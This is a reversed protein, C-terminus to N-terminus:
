SASGAGPAGPDPDVSAVRPTANRLPAPGGGGGFEGAVLAEWRASELVIPDKVQADPAGARVRALKWAAFTGTPVLQVVPAALRDTDRKSAYELNGARLAADFREALDPTAGEMEVALRFWPREGWGLSASLGVAGPAVARAAAVIQDETVKEGTANLFNGAKRVFVIRPAGGAWGVVRVIDGMDYRLLGAETSVVLRYEAGEELEWAWRARGDDGVFELVHGALWAIPGEDDVSVGFAGESANVGAERVPVEAGLAKSLKELFFPASGGTWCSVRRLDWARAPLAEAPLRARPFGGWGGLRGLRRREADSLSAAPGRRFTGDACDRALDDWWATMRRCYLLITSPNATTWSRVPQTLAHRLIGYARVEPDEICYVAYPVPARVRVYWPQALFMRGTNAGIPLGGPSRAHEAASVISLASGQALSEDDRLLGLVWLSQAAGVSRAWPDTVPLWKPRGTTGSTELLMRVPARTLVGVEGAAVRDLLPLMDAHTRVPVRERFTDLTMDRRLGLARGQAADCVADLVAHLRAEQAGRPDECVRALDRVAAAHLGRLLRYPGHGTEPFIM